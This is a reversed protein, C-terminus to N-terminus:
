VLKNKLKLFLSDIYKKDILKLKITVIIYIAVIILKFIVKNLFYIDSKMLFYIPLLSISFTILQYLLKKYSIPLQVFKQAIYFLLSSSIIGAILTAMGAGIFGFKPILIINLSVNIVLAIITSPLNYITKESYLILPKSLLSLSQSYFFYSAIIPILYMSDNYAPTTLVKVLEEAFVCILFCLFGYLALINQYYNSILNKSQSTNEEINKFFFPSWVKGFVSIATKATQGFRHGIQYQGVFGLGALNALMVKDFSNHIMGIIEQPIQPYSLLFSKKFAKLSLKLKFYKRQLFLLIIFTLFNGILLGYIRGDYKLSFELIFIIGIIAILANSFINIVSSVLAKEQAILLYKLYDSLSSFCGMAYTILLIRISISNNFFNNIILGKLFFIVVGFFTFSVIISILNTFNLSKFDTLDDTFFYKFSASRLGLSFLSSTASAFVILLGFIGFEEPTLYRTYFPLLLVTLIASFLTSGGYALFNKFM